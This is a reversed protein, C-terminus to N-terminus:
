KHMLGGPYCSSTLGAMNGKYNPKMKFHMNTLLQMHPVMYACGYITHWIHAVMHPYRYTHLWIHAIMYSHGYAPVSIHAVMCQIDYIFLWIHVGMYQGDHVAHLCLAQIILVAFFDALLVRVVEPTNKRGHVVLTNPRSVLHQLRTSVHVDM